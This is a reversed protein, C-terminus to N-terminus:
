ILSHYPHQYPEGKSLALTATEEQKWDKRYALSFM